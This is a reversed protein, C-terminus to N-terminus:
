HTKKPHLPTTPVPKHVPKPAHAPVHAPLTTPSPAVPKEATGDPQTLTPDPLIPPPAQMQATTDPQRPRTVLLRVAPQGDVTIQDGVKIDAWEADQGNIIVKCKEDLRYEKNVGNWTAHLVYSDLIATVIGNM